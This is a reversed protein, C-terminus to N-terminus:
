KEETAPSSPQHQSAPFTAVQLLEDLHGSPPVSTGNHLRHLRAKAGARPIPPVIAWRSEEAGVATRGNFSVEIPEAKQVVSDREDRRGLESRVTEGVLKDGKSGVRRPAPEVERLVGGSVRLHWRSHMWGHGLREDSGVAKREENM